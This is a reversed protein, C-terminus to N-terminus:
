GLAWAFLASFVLTSIIVMLALSILLLVLWTTDSPYKNSTVLFSMLYAMLCAVSLIWMVVREWGRSVNRWVYNVLEILM